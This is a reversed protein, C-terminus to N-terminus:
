VGGAGFIYCIGNEDIYLNHASTCSVSDSKSSSFFKNAHWYTKGSMDTLDVVLLGTNAESTVYAYNKWTKIDRWVTNSDNIFFREIPLKPNTVDVVSLGDRLGVLAYENNSSDVWGWIDNGQSTLYDLSGLLNLNWSDQSFLFLPTFVLLFIKKM